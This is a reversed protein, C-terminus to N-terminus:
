PQSLFVPRSSLARGKKVPKSRPRGSPEQMSASLWMQFQRTTPPLQRARMAGSPSSSRITSSGQLQGVLQAKPPELRSVSNTVEARKVILASCRAALEKSPPRNSSLSPTRPTGPLAFPTALYDDAGSDLGAVRDPIEGRATLVLVSTGDQRTRLRRVLWLGDGDPLQRDLLIADYNEDLAFDDAEDLSAAHDVVRAAHHFIIQRQDFGPRNQTVASVASDRRGRARSRPSPPM